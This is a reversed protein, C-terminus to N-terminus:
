SVKLMHGFMTYEGCLVTPPKPVNDKKVNDDSYREYYFTPPLPFSLQADEGSGGAAAM